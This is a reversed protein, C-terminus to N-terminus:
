GLCSKAGECCPCDGSLGVGSYDQVQFVCVYVRDTGHIEHACPRTTLRAETPGAMGATSGTLLNGVARPRM